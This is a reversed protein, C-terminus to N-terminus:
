IPERGAASHLLANGSDDRRDDSRGAVGQVCGHPYGSRERTHRWRDGRTASDHQFKGRAFCALRRQRLHGERHWQPRVHHSVVHRDLSGRRICRQIRRRHQACTRPRSRAPTTPIAYPTNSNSIYRVWRRPNLHAIRAWPSPATAPRPRACKSWNAGNGAQSFYLPTPHQVHSNAFELPYSSIVQEHAPLAAGYTVCGNLYEAGVIGLSTLAHLRLAVADARWARWPMAWLPRWSLM